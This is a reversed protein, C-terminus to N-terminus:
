LTLSWVNLQQRKGNESGVLTFGYRDYFDNAPLSVPCKLLIFEKESMRAEAELAKVLASGVGLNRYQPHVVIQYLTTQKDRRHHYHVFGLVEKGMEIAVLIESGVIAKELTSRIVFGFEYRHQDCLWKIEGLDELNAKRVEFHIGNNGSTM